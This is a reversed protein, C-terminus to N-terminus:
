ISVYLPIANRLFENFVEYGLWDLHQMWDVGDIGESTLVTDPSYQVGELEAIQQKISDLIQKKEIALFTMYGSQHTSKKDQKDRTAKKSVKHQREEVKQIKKSQNLISTDNQEESKLYEEGYDESCFAKKTYEM